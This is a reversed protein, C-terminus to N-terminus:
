ALADAVETLAAALRRCQDATLEDAADGTGVMAALGTVTGDSHQEACPQIWVGGVRRHRGFVFRSGGVRWDDATWGPPPLVDASVAAALNASAMERAVRLTVDGSADYGDLYTCLACQDATLQDAIDRWSTGM